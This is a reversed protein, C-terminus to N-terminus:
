IVKNNANQLYKANNRYLFINALFIASIHYLHTFVHVKRLIYQNFAINILLSQIAICVCM